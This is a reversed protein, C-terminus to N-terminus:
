SVWTQGGNRAPAATVTVLELAEGTTKGWNRAAHLAADIDVWSKALNRSLTWDTPSNAGAIFGTRGRLLYRTRM